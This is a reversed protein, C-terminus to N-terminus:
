RMRIGKESNQILTALRKLRTKEQKASVVWWILTRRYWPAQAGFFDWAQM